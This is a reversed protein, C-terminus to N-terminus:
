RYTLLSIDKQRELYAVENFVQLAIQRDNYRIRTISGNMIQWSLKLADADALNLAQQVIVIIPGSSTFVAVRKGRGQEQIIRRMGKRVRKVFGSWTPLGEPPQVAGVWAQMVASFLRQFARNDTTLNELDDGYTPDSRQLIPLYHAWVALSDYENFLDLCIPKPSAAPGDTPNRYLPAATDRHRKLNGAYVADFSLQLEAFHRGLLAAQRHGTKSLRDYNESGFSAQGHRILYVTSM